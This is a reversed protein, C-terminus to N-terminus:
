RLDLKDIARALAGGVDPVRLHKRNEVIQRGGVVVDTVDAATAAFVLHAALDDVETGALRPTELDVVIFDALAGPELRGAHWGLSQAGTETAGALLADADHLGRVERALRQNLEVARAEEFLDVIAHSDSGFCLASGAETLPAAPGIGDGLDRETTPCVCVCTHSRGLLEVDVGSLHTAHVATTAAGLCGAEALVEVPSMGAVQMCEEVEARQESVHTHLPVERKRAWEAVSEISPKDVARVSHVAAGVRAMPTPELDDARAAWSDVDGDSFRMQVEDLPGGRIGGRLYCTDLLTLRIGAVEAASILAAGMENPDSYRRGAPGHHLYHFEGVATIGALAMESYTAVALERYTEPDLQQAVSYMANRWAWFDGRGRQTTGRLARHFAHSHANVLGPLLAGRLRIADRPAKVGTTVSTIRSADVEVLVDREPRGLWAVDAHWQEM